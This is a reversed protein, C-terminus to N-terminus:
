SPQKLIRLEKPYYNNVRTPLVKAWGLAKDQYTMLSWGKTPNELVLDDRRLYAIAETKSLEHRHISEKLLPSMALEHDPVLDNGAIQGLRVGVKRVYLNLQFLKIDNEHKPNFLYYDDNKLFWAYKELDNIWKSFIATETRRNKNPQPKVRPTKVALYENKTKKFAAIFFGEGKVKDPYFRYGTAQHTKSKSPTIGWSTLLEEDPLVCNKVDFETCIWDCIDENESESYSCTSYILIGDEKLCDWADALIRQQRQYCLVVNEPSWEETAEPDKRFLGSGSCPADVVLVDFYGALRQGIDKPDNNCVYTNLCGWKTLNDVLINARSRIVENSLLISDPTLLSAILTSKGGPAACLDLVKLDQNLKVTNKLIYEVFMSSAEQVYYTGAHFLPDFTFIPREPLYHGFASWPIAENSAENYWAEPCPKFPNLRISTPPSAQNHISLFSEEQFGTTDQLSDLLAQPIPM